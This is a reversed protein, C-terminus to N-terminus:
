KFFLWTFQSIRHHSIKYCAIWPINTEKQCVHKGRPCCIYSLLLIVSSVQFSWCPFEPWKLWKSKIITDNVYAQSELLLLLGPVMNLQFWTYIPEVSLNLVQQLLYYIPTKFETMSHYFINNGYSVLSSEYLCCLNSKSLGQLLIICHCEGTGKYIETPEKVPEGIRVGTQGYRTSGFAFVQLYIYTKINTIYM